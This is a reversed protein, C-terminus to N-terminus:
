VQNRKQRWKLKRRQSTSPQQEIFDTVSVPIPVCEGSYGGRKIPYLTRVRIGLADALGCYKVPASAPPAATRRDGTRRAAAVIEQVRSISRAGIKAAIQALNLRRAYLDLVRDPSIFAKPM